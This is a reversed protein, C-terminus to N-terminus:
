GNFASLFLSVDESDFLGDGNFDSDPNQTIYAGLFASIDFFDLVGDATFDAVNEVAFVSLDPMLRVRDDGDGVRIIISDHGAVDGAGLTFSFIGPEVMTPTGISFLDERGAISWSGPDSIPLLEGQWDRLEVAISSQSGLAIRSRGVVKSHVADVKGTLTARWADFQTQLQDVPDP